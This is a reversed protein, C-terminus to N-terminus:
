EIAYATKQKFFLQQVGKMCIEQEQFMMEDFRERAGDEEQGPTILKTARGVEPELADRKKRLGGGALAGDVEEETVAFTPGIDPPLFKQAEEMGKLFALNLMDQDGPLLCNGNFSIQAGDHPSASSASASATATADSSSSSPSLASASGSGASHVVDVLIQSFPLQAQLLAPHDPYLFFFQDDTGEEMLMRSIYPLAMDDFSSDRDEECRPAPPLDLFLSPSPPELRALLGQQHELFEEPRGEAAM